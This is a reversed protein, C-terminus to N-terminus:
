ERDRSTELLACEGNKSHSALTARQCTEVFNNFRQTRSQLPVGDAEKRSVGIGKRSVGTEKRSVNTESEVGGSGDLPVGEARRMQQPAAGRVLVPDFARTRQRAVM